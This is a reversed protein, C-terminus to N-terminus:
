VHNYINLKANPTPEEHIPYSSVHPHLYTMCASTKGKQVRERCKDTYWYGGESIWKYKQKTADSVVPTAPTSLRAYYKEAQSNGEKLYKFHDAGNDGAWFHGEYGLYGLRKVELISAFEAKQHLKSASAGWVETSFDTYFKSDLTKDNAVYAVSNTSGTTPVWHIHYSSKLKKKMVEGALVAVLQASLWSPFEIRITVPGDTVDAVADEPIWSLYKNLARTSKTGDSRGRSHEDRVWQCAAKKAAVMKQAHTLTIQPTGLVDVESNRLYKMLTEEEMEFNQVLSGAYKKEGSYMDNALLVELPLSAPFTSAEKIQINQQKQKQKDITEAMNKFTSHDFEILTVEVWHNQRDPYEAGGLQFSPIRAIITTVFEEDQRYQEILTFDDNTFVFAVKEFNLSSVQGLVFDSELSNFDAAVFIISCENKTKTDGDQLLCQGATYHACPHQSQSYMYSCIPFGTLDAAGNIMPLKSLISGEQLSLPPIYSKYYDTAITTYKERAFTDTLWTIHGTIKSSLSKLSTLELRKSEDYAFRDIGWVLMNIDADNNIVQQRATQVNSSSTVIKVDYGIVEDLLIKIIESFFINAAWKSVALKITIHKERQNPLIQQLCKQPHYENQMYGHSVTLQDKLSDNQTNGLHRLINNSLIHKKIVMDNDRVQLLKQFTSKGKKQQQKNSVVFSATRLNKNLNYDLPGTLGVIDNSPLLKKLKNGTVDKLPTSKLIQNYAHAISLIADYAYMGEMINGGAVASLINLRDNASNKEMLSKLATLIAKDIQYTMLLQHLHEEKETSFLEVWQAEVTSLLEQSAPPTAMSVSLVGNPIITEQNTPLSALIPSKSPRDSIPLMIITFGNWNFKSTQRFFSYIDELKLILIVNTTKIKTMITTFSTIDFTKNLYDIQNQIRFPVDLLTAEKTIENLCETARLTGASKIVTVTRGIFWKFHSAIKTFAKSVQLGSISTRMLYGSEALVSVDYAGNSLSLIEYLNVLLSLSRIESSTSPAVMSIVKKQKDKILHTFQDIASKSSGATDKWQLQLKHDPLISPLQNVNYIALKTMMLSILGEINSYEPAKKSIDNTLATLAYLGGIYIVRKSPATRCLLIDKNNNFYSSEAEYCYQGIQCEDYTANRNCQCPNNTILKVDSISCKNTINFCKNKSADCMLGNTATCNVTGCLCLELNPAKADSITCNGYPSGAASAALLLLLFVLM